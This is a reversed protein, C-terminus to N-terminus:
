SCKSYGCNPCSNCGEQMRLEAGCEPCILKNSPKSIDKVKEQQEYNDKQLFIMNHVEKSMDILANGIAVPCCSGPSTDGKIARRVAYSPCTGSSKLQDVIAEVSVGARAALSVMRSLGTMFNLCGGTSGKSFYTERLEGTKKDFFALLHLTGCGTMLQRKLGIFDNAPPIIYGRPMLPKSDIIPDGLHSEEDKPKDNNSANLIAIRKCGARFITIGKLKNRWANMYIEKVLDISAEEPLNVTSSISADISDQWIGQMKIRMLPDITSSDVFYDPLEKNYNQEKWDKAIKTYIKYTEDHGHLSKTTRDYSMAFIPEIGGSIQLMTSLSGTPAITLLQSNYLGHKKIKEITVPEAHTKIYESQLLSDIDCKPYAGELSNAMNASEDIATAAMKKAIIDCFTLAKQSDYKIGMKILMDAIGMVGLGIQRYECVSQKQIDLPHLSSGDILVKNLERIGLRVIREFESFDFEGFPSVFASLNISGLM